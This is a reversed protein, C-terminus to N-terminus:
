RATLRNCLKYRIETTHIPGICLGRFTVYFLNCTMMWAGSTCLDNDRQLTYEEASTVSHCQRTMLSYPVTPILFSFLMLSFMLLRWYLLIKTEAKREEGTGCFDCRTADRIGFVCNCFILDCKGVYNFNLNQHKIQNASVCTLYAQLCLHQARINGEHRFSLNHNNVYM